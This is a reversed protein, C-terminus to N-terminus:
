QVSILSIHFFNCKGCWLRDQLCNMLDLHLRRLELSPLGLSHLRENYSKYKLEPLRKTFRRQLKEILEIDKKLSPSWAISCYEVIPAHRVYVTFARLLLNIDKFM